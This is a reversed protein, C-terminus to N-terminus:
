DDKSTRRSGLLGVRTHYVRNEWDSEYPEYQNLQQLQQQMQQQLEFQVHLRADTTNLATETLGSGINGTTGVSTNVGGKLVDEL